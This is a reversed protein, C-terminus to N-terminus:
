YLNGLLLGFVVCSEGLDGVFLKDKYCAIFRPKSQELRPPSLGLPVRVRSLEYGREPCLTVIILTGLYVTEVTMLKGDESM